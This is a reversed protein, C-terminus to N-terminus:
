SGAGRRLAALHKEAEQVNETIKGHKSVMGYWQLAQAPQNLEEVLLRACELSARESQPLGPQGQALSAYVQYADLPSQREAHFEAVTLLADASLHQAIWPYTRVKDHIRAAEAPDNRSAYLRIAKGYHPLARAQRHTHELAIALKFHMDADDDHERILQTFCDAARSLEGNRFFDYADKTTYVEKGHRHLGAAVAVLAGFAMGGLHAWHAVGGGGEDGPIGVEWIAQILEWGGWLGLVIFSSVRIVGARNLFLGLGAIWFIKVRTRYFRVAFVGLLAAIAGSAGIMPLDGEDPLILAVAMVQLMAAAVGGLLYVLAFWIRGIADEVHRGFLILFLMNGGIHFPLPADHIFQHSIFSHWRLDAPVVGAWFVLREFAEWGIAVCVFYALINAAALGYTVYPVGGMKRDVGYPIPVLM